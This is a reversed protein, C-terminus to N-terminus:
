HEVFVIPADSHWCLACNGCHRGAAGGMAEVQEPCVIATGIRKRETPFDVTFSGWPACLGSHRIMFRGPNAGRVHAIADGVETGPMWATFGFCHLRPHLRLQLAWFGVYSADWFDGLVHLRVLVLDNHWGALEDAIRALLEPGHQWRRALQMSNGYCIALAPCSAPCTAREELTLTLIRAGKLRGKLVDGGIKSNSAGDKLVPEADTPVMVRTPFMTRTLDTAIRNAEGTPVPTTKFRRRDRIKRVEAAGDAAQRERRERIADGTALRSM